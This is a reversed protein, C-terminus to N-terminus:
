HLDKVHDDKNICFITENNHTKNLGEIRFIIREKQETTVIFRLNELARVEDIETSKFSIYQGKILSLACLDMWLRAANTNAQAIQKFCEGCCVFYDTM